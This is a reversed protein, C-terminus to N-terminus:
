IPRACCRTILLRSDGRIETAHTNCRYPPFLDAPNHPIVPM